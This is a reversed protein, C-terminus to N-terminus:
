APKANLGSSTMGACAPIWSEVYKIGKGYIYGYGSVPMQFCGICIEESQRNGKESGGGHLVVRNSASTRRAM